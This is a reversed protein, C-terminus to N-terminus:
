PRKQLRIATFGDTGHVHPFLRVYGAADPAVPFGEPPDVQWPGHGALLTAVVAENEDPELSCTAYVLRGGPKVMSAAAELITRQKDQLRRLDEETRRWKVEPNRRLVGLNSCPADVLVRDCKGKWRGALAAAGGVRPEIITIGLRAASKPVLKLRAAQPDMAVIRGRNRMLEALHTAKTGPAACADAVLDGPQPDLLRAVLMSAEDQITCWGAAFAAWRGVAGRDILLGEPALATPRTSALEEDRLRGALAERTIRLLNVRMTTPPRENSALMLAEAEPQGYRAIWRAAIWDPFSCRVAAAEVPVAPLPPPGAARTLSRLVANVFEPPGPKRAKLKALSVAEDVAAWRPVRDLFFLQYATLRLVTRVWPDLKDLPRNLHPALRWDLHRRWRLTGYVPGLRAGRLFEEWAMPKRSEPQVEVPLLLGSGTAVCTAGPGSLVLTGPAATGPHPVAAARWVILRGAPTMVSAGPWPNCGRVRNVLERAPDGLRLWGDEKKLRPALTAQAHDQPKPALSDLEDLTRIMVRAGIESLRVSLEGATEDPGIPTSESLLLAGTDMGPDMQFTTIGTETEGRMIAWAIPAAGRYRPLLSAHVNISGRRPVDLVAKPLIQGFAVVVAIDADLEALREPWGPERLRTPQIVPVGAREARKKVPPPTVRQGRGAPKDPQTIAAVVTHRELLAEFTPLAFEPTGYFLVRM